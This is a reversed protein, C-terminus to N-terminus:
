IFENAIDWNILDCNRHTVKIDRLALRANARWLGCANDYILQDVLAAPKQNTHIFEIVGYNACSIINSRGSSMITIRNIPIQSIIGLDSLVTELSIYNFQNARMLAVVHFLLLGDPRFAKKCLYIGKSIRMLLGSRVTRAMLAKFTNDSLNPCLMRLDTSRFLCRKSNANNALREGIYKMPQM